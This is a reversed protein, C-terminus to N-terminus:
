LRRYLHEQYDYLDNVEEGKQPALESSIIEDEISIKSEHYLGQNM